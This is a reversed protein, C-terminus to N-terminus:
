FVEGEEKSDFLIEDEEDKKEEKKNLPLTVIFSAGESKRSKIELNGELLDVLSHVISLGLGHGGYEKRTGTDLQNFRDYIEGLNSESIGIGQDIVKLVMEGGSSRDAEIKVESGDSSFKIANSVLNLLILELKQRDSVIWGDISVNTVLKIKKRKAKFQISEVMEDILHSMNVRVLFPAIEGAEIEAACFINRMQYNLEYAENYILKANSIMKGADGGNTMIQHLLGLMSTLPNNIENKINSLFDSKLRESKLLKENVEALHQELKKYEEHINSTDRNSM